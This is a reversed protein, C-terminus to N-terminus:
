PQRQFTRCAAALRVEEASEEGVQTRDVPKVGEFIVLSFQPGRHVFLRDDEQITMARNSNEAPGDM